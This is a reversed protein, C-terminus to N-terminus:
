RYGAPQTWGLKRLAAYAYRQTYWHGGREIVALLLPIAKPDKIEGLAYCVQCHVLPSSDRMMSVLLRFGRASRSGALARALWYREALRPSHSLSDADAYRLPDIHQRAAQRLVAIRGALTGERWLAADSGTGAGPAAALPYFVGAGIVLCVLAAAWTGHHGLFRGLVTETGAFVALYLMVPFGALIGALTVRRFPGNPDLAASIRQRAAEPHALIEQRSLSLRRGSSDQWLLGKEQPWVIAAAGAAAGVDLVDCRRLAETLDGLAGDDRLRSLDVGIQTRQSLPAMAQAALLTYDYYWEVVKAGAPSAFLLRDRVDVFLRPDLRTSWLGTLLVLSVAIIVARPFRGRGPPLRSGFFFGALTVTGMMALVYVSAGINFGTHNLFVAAGAGLVALVGAQGALPWGSRQVLRVAGLTILVILSGTTATFFLGGMFANVWGSLDEVVRLSPVAVYGRAIIATMQEQFGLAACRVLGTAAAQSVMLGLAVAAINGADSSPRRRNLSLSVTEKM